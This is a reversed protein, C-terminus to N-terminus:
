DSGVQKESTVTTWSTVVVTLGPRSKYLDGDHRSKQTGRDRRDEQEDTLLFM